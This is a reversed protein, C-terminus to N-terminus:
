YNILSMWYKSSAFLYQLFPFLGKVLAARSKQHLDERVRAEPGAFPPRSAEFILRLIDFSKLRCAVSLSEESVDAVIKFLSDAIVQLNGSEALRPIVKEVFNLSSLQQDTNKSTLFHNIQIMGLEQNWKSGDRINQDLVDLTEKLMELCQNLAM